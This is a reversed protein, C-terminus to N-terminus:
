KTKGDWPLMLVKDRDGAHNSYIAQSFGWNNFATCNPSHVCAKLVDTAIAAAKTWDVASRRALIDFETIQAQVGIDAYAKMARLVQEYIDASIEFGWTNM